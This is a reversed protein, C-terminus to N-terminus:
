LYLFYMYGYSRERIELFGFSRAEYFIDRWEEKLRSFSSQDQHFIIGKLSYVFEKIKRSAKKFSERVLAYEPSLQWGNRFYTAM